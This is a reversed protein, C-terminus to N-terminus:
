RYAVAARDDVQVGLGAQRPLCRHVQLTPVPLRSRHGRRNGTQNAPRWERGVGDGRHRRAQHRAAVGSPQHRRLAQQASICRRERGTPRRRGRNQQGAAVCRHESIDRRHLRGPGARTRCPVLLCRGRRRVVKQCRGNTPEFRDGSASASCLAASRKSSGPDQLDDRHNRTSRRIRHAVQDLHVRRYRLQLQRHHRRHRSREEHEHTRTSQRFRAGVTALQHGVTPQRDRPDRRAGFEM